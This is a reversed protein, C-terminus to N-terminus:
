VNSISLRFHLIFSFLSPQASGCELKGRIRGRIEGWSSKLSMRGEKLDDERKTGSQVETQDEKRVILTINM